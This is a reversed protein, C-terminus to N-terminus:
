GAPAPEDPRRRRYETWAALADRVTAVAGVRGLEAVPIWAALDTSGDVEMVTPPVDVPVSGAYILRLGQFDELRGHPARGIFHRSGIDILPGVTYSLGTEEWLERRLAILPHEGHDIGGGPLTWTSQSGALRSLLIRPASAAAATDDVLVAYAAPRQVVVPHEGTGDGAGAGNGNGNGAEAEAEAAATLPEPGLLADDTGFEPGPGPDGVTLREPAPTSLGLVEAAFPMLSLGPLDARAVFRAAATVAPDDDALRLDYILRLSHVSTGRQPLDIVDATAERPTVSVAKLGTQESLGRQASDRPHEGHRVAAGPLSWRGRLPSHESAPILLVAGTPDLLVGHASTRQVQRLAPSDQPDPGPV